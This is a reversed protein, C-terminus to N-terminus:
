DMEGSPLATCLADSLRFTNGGYENAVGTLIQHPVEGGFTALASSLEVRRRRGM